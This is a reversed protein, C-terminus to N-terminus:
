PLECNQEAETRNLASPGPGTVFAVREGELDELRVEDVVLQQECQQGCQQECQVTTFIFMASLKSQGILPVM